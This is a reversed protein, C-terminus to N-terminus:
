PGRRFTSLCNRAIENGGGLDRIFSQILQDTEGRALVLEHTVPTRLDPIVSVSAWAGSVARPTSVGVFLRLFAHFDSHTITFTAISPLDDNGYHLDPYNRDFVEIKPTTTYVSFLTTNVIESQIGVYTFKGQAFLLQAPGLGILSAHNAVSNM